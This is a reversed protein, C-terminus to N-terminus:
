ELSAQLLTSHMARRGLVQLQDPDKFSGVGVAMAAAAKKAQAVPAHDEECEEDSEEMDQLIGHVNFM